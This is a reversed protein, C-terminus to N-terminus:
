SCDSCCVECRLLGSATTFEPVLSPALILDCWPVLLPLYVLPPPHLSSQAPRALFCFLFCSKGNEWSEGQQSDRILSYQITNQNALEPPPSPLPLLSPLLCFLSVILPASTSSPPTPSMTPPSGACLYTCVLVVKPCCLSRFLM